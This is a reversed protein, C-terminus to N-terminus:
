KRERSPSHRDKYINRYRSDHDGEQRYDRHGRQSPRRRDYKSTEFRRENREQSRSRSRYDVGSRDIPTLSRSRSEKKVQRIENRTSVYRERENEREDISRSSSPTRSRSRKIPGEHEWNRLLQEVGRLGSSKSPVKLAKKARKREKRALREEPTEDKHKDKSKKKKKMKEKKRKDMLYAAM